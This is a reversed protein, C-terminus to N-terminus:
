KMAIHQNEVVVENKVELINILSPPPPSVGRGQTKPMYTLSAKPAM